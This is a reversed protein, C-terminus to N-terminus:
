SRTSNSGLAWSFNGLFLRGFALGVLRLMLSAMFVQSFEGSSRFPGRGDLAVALITAINPLLRISISIFEMLTASQIRALGSLISLWIRFHSVLTSSLVYGTTALNTGVAKSLVGSLRLFSSSSIPSCFPDIRLENHILFRDFHTGLWCNALRFISHAVGSAALMRILPGTYM